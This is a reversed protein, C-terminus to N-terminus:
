FKKVFKSIKSCKMCKVTFKENELKAVCNVKPIFTQACGFCFLPNETGQLNRIKSNIFEGGGKAHYIPLLKELYELRPNAM